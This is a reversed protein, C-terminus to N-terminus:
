NDRSLGGPPFDDGESPTGGPIISDLNIRDMDPLSGVPRLSALTQGDSSPQIRNNHTVLRIGTRLKEEWNELNKVDDARAKYARLTLIVGWTIERNQIEITDDWILNANIQFGAITDVCALLIKADDKTTAATDDSNSLEILLQETYKAEVLLKLAPSTGVAM